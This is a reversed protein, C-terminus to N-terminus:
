LKIVYLDLKGTMSKNAVGTVNTIRAVVGFDTSLDLVKKGESYKIEGLLNNDKYVKVTNELRIDVFEGAVVNKWADQHASTNIITTQVLKTPPFDKMNFCKYFGIQIQMKGNKEDISNLRAEIYFEDSGHYKLFMEQIYNKHIYGLHQGKFLIRIANPDHPNTPDLVLEVKEGCELKSYDIKLYRSGAVNENYYAWKLIYAGKIDDFPYKNTVKKENSKKKELEKVKEQEEEKNIKRDFYTLVFFFVMPVPAIAQTVKNNLSFLILSILALAIMLLARIMAPIKKIIRKMPIVEVTNYLVKKLNFLSFHVILENRRKM